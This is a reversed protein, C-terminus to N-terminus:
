LVIREDLAEERASGHTVEFNNRMESRRLLQCDQLNKTPYTPYKM